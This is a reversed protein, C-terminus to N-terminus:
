TASAAAIVHNAAAIEHNAAAIEHNAAAIVHNAAAIVHNAFVIMHLAVDNSPFLLKGQFATRQGSVFFTEPKFQGYDWKTYLIQSTSTIGTLTTYHRSSLNGSFSNRVM